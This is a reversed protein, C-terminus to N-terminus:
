VVAVWRLMFSLDNPKRTEPLIDEWHGLIYSKLSRIM